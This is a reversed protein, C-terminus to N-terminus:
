KRGKGIMELFEKNASTIHSHVGLWRGDQKIMVDTTFEDADFTQGNFISTNTVRSTMIATDGYVQVKPEGVIDFSTHVLAGSRVFSLFHEKTAVGRESVIVWDDHMFSGIKDADNSLMAAAWETIGELIEQEQIKM